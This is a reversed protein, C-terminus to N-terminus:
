YTWIKRTGPLGHISGASWINRVLASYLHPIVERLMRAVSNRICGPISNTNKAMFACQQNTNLKDVLAGKEASCSELQNAGLMYWQMSNYRGPHLVERKGKSFKMPNRNTWKKLM